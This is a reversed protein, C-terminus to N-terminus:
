LMATLKLNCQVLLNMVKNKFVNYKKKQKEGEQEDNQEQFMQFLDFSGIGVHIYGIITIHNINTIQTENMENGHVDTFIFEFPIAVMQATKFLQAQSDYGTIRSFQSAELLKRHM